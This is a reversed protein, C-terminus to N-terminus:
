PECLWCKSFRGQEPEFEAPEELRCRDMVRPCRPAFACGPGTQGPSPPQGGIADLRDKRKFLPPVSELLARTYPHLPKDLLSRAPGKEMARGAYVVVVSDALQGVIGMNHTILVLAMNKERQLRKLQAILQAQVTVDLATTPEDAILVEPDCALAMALLVRQRMGGSLQHPYQDLRKEPQRIGTMALLAAAQQRRQRADLRTKFAESVQREITLVPNLSTMPDQFVMAVGSGRVARLREESFELLNEGRFIIEGSSVHAQEPLLGLAALAQVTKGSGSEGVVALTKGKFAAYSLNHLARQRQGDFSFEVSLNKVELAPQLRNQM